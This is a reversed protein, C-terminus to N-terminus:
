HASAHEVVLVKGLPVTMATCIGNTQNLLVIDCSAAVASLAPKEVEKVPTPSTGPQNAAFASSLVMAASALRILITQTMSKTEKRTPLARRKWRVIRQWAVSRSVKERQVDTVLTM